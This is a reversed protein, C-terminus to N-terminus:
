RPAVASRKFHHLGLHSASNTKSALLLQQPVDDPTSSDDAPNQLSLLYFQNEIKTVHTVTCGSFLLFLGAILICKQLMAATEM